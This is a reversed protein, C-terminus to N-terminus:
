NGGYLSVAGGTMAASFVVSISNLAATLGQYSGTMMAIQGNGTSEQGASFIKWTKIGSLNAEDFVVTGTLRYVGTPNVYSYTQAPAAAAFSQSSGTVAGNAYFGGTMYNGTLGNVMVYINRNSSSHSVNDFALKYRKYGSLSSWTLTTGSNANQTSILTWTPGGTTGWGASNGAATIAAITVGASAANTTISSTIAAMTVGASAAYTQILSQINASTPVAGAVATAIDSNQPGVGPVSNIAM